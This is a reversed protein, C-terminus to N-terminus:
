CLSSSADPVSGLNHKKNEQLKKVRDSLTCCEIMTGISHADAITLSDMKISAPFSEWKQSGKQWTQAFRSIKSDVSLLEAKHIQTIRSGQHVPGASM